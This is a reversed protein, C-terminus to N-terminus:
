FLRWGNYRVLIKNTFPFFFPFCVGRLDGDTSWDWGDTGLDLPGSREREEGLFLFFYTNGRRLSDPIGDRM